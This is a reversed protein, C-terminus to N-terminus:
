ALLMLGVQLLVILILVSLDVGGVLPVVRRLPRLFPDCLRGLTGMVPSQPQVWSLIAYALLLVMLGQLLSRLLMRVSMGLVMTLVHESPMPGSVSTALLAWVVGFALSLLVAALLSGWDVRSRSLAQPLVRRLPAVLWNTLAIVFRGPQASMHVRLQNMWARLLAAAVLFFFVTELLFLVIRM